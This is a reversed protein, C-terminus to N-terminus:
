SPTCCTPWSGSVRGPSASDWDIIVWEEGAVLNWPALDGHLVLNGGIPDISGQWWPVQPPPAFSASARHFDRVLRAARGLNDDTALLDPADPWTTVGDHFTLIERGKEDIGLVRPSGTFGVRELHRLLAHVARWSATRPRRVTDGVRVVGATMNGGPLPREEQPKSGGTMG